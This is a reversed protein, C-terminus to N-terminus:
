VVLFCLSYTCKTRVKLMSNFLSGVKVFCEGRREERRLQHDPDMHRVLAGLGHHHILPLRDPLHQVAQQILGVTAVARVPRKHFGDSLKLHTLSCGCIKEVVSSDFLHNAETQVTQVQTILVDVSSGPPLFTSRKM